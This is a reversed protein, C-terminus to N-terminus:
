AVSFFHGLINCQNDSNSRTQPRRQRAAKGL